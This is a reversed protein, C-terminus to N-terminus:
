LGDMGSRSGSFRMMGSATCGRISPSVVIVSCTSFLSPSTPSSEYTLACVGARGPDDLADSFQLIAKLSKAICDQCGTINVPMGFQTRDGLFRFQKELIPELHIVGPM